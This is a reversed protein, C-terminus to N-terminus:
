LSILAVGALFNSLVRDEWGTSMKMPLFYVLFTPFAYMMFVFAKETLIGELFLLKKNHKYIM